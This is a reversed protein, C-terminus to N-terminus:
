LLVLHSDSLLWLNRKTEKKSMQSMNVNKERLWFCFFVLSSFVLVLQNVNTRGRKAEATQREAISM